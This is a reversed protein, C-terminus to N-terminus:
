VTVHTLEDPQNPEWLEVECFVLLLYEINSLAPGPCPVMIGAVLCMASSVMIGPVLSCRVCGRWGQAEVRCQLVASCQVAASVTVSLM